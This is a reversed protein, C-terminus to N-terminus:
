QFLDGPRKPFALVAPAYPTHSPEAFTQDRSSIRNPHSPTPLQDWGPATAPQMMVQQDGQGRLGDDAWAKGLIGSFGRVRSSEAASGFENQPSGGSLPNYFTSFDEKAPTFGEKRKQEYEKTQQSAKARTWEPATHQDLRRSLWDGGHEGSRQMSDASFRTLGEDPQMWSGEKSWGKDRDRDRSFAQTATKPIIGVTRTRQPQKETARVFGFGHIPM